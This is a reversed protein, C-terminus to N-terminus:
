NYSPKHLHWLCSLSRYCCSVTRWRRVDAVICVSPKQVRLQQKIANYYCNWIVCYFFCRERPIRDLDTFICTLDWQNESTDPKPEREEVEQLWKDQNFFSGKNGSALDAAAECSFATKGKKPRPKSLSFPCLKTEKKFVNM